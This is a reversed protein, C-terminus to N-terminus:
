YLRIRLCDASREIEEFRTLGFLKLARPIEVSPNHAPFLLLIM